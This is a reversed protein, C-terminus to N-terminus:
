QRDIEMAIRYIGVFHRIGKTKCTGPVFKEPDFIEIGDLLSDGMEASRTDFAVCHRVPEFGTGQKNPNNYTCVALFVATERFTQVLNATTWGGGPNPVKQLRLAPNAYSKLAM